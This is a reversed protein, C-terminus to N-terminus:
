TGVPGLKFGLTEGLGPGNWAWVETDTSRIYFEKLTDGEIPDYNHQQVHFYNQGDLTVEELVNWRMTWQNGLNDQKDMESWLGSRLPFLQDAWAPAAMLMFALTLLVLTKKRVMIRKGKLKKCIKSRTNGELHLINACFLNM